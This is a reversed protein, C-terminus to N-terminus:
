AHLGGGAFRYDRWIQFGQWRRDDPNRTYFNQMYVAVDVKATGQTLVQGVRAFYDNYTKADIWDPDRPGLRKFVRGPWLQPIGAM